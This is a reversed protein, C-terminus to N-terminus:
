GRLSNKSNASGSGSKSPPASKSSTGSKSPGAKPSSASKPRSNPQASPLADVSSRNLLAEALAIVSEELASLRQSSQAQASTVIGSVTEEVEGRAPRARVEQSIGGVADVLHSEAERLREDLAALHQSHDPLPRQALETLRRQLEPTDLVAPLQELRDHVSELRSDVGDLRGQVGGFRGDLGDLRGTAGEIRNAVGELGQETRHGLNDITQELREARENLSTLAKDLRSFRAAAADISAQLHEMRQTLEDFRRSDDQTSDTITQIKGLAEDVSEAVVGMDSWLSPLQALPKVREGMVDMHEALREAWDPPPQKAMEDLREGLTALALNLNGIERERVDQLVWEVGELRQRVEDLADDQTRQDDVQDQAARALLERMRDSVATGSSEQYHNGVQNM